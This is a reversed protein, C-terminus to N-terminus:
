PDGVLNGEQGKYLHKHNPRRAMAIEMAHDRQGLSRLPLIMLYKWQRLAANRVGLRSYKCKSSEPLPVGTKSVIFAQTLLGGVQMAVVAEVMVVDAGVAEGDEAEVVEPVERTAAKELPM